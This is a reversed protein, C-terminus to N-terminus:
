RPCPMRSTRGLPKSNQTSTSTQGSSHITTSLVQPYRLCRSAIQLTRYRRATFAASVLAIHRLRSALQVNYTKVLDVGQLLRFDERRVTLWTLYASGSVKQCRTCHCLEFPGVAHEIEFRVSGCLCSGRIM